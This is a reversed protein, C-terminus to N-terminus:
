NCTCWTKRDKGCYKEMMEIYLPDSEDTHSLLRHKPCDILEERKSREPQVPILNIYDEDSLGQNKANNYICNSCYSDYLGYAKVPCRKNDILRCELM